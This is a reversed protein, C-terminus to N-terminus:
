QRHASIVIFWQGGNHLVLGVEVDDGHIGDNDQTPSGQNHLNIELNLFQEAM